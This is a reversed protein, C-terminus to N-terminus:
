EADLIAATAGVEMDITPEMPEMLEILPIPAM